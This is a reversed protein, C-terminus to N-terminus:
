AAAYWHQRFRLRARHLRSRVTGVPLSLTDAIEEENLGMIRLALVQRHDRSLRRLVDDIYVFGIPNETQHQDALQVSRPSRSHERRVARLAEHAAIKRVWGYFAAQDRLAGVGRSIALLAEQVADSSHREAIPACVWSVYPAISALLDNLADADGAQARPLLESLTPGPRSARTM